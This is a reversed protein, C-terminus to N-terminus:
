APGWSGSEPLPHDYMFKFFTDQNRSSPFKLHRFIGEDIDCPGACSPDCTSNGNIGIVDTNSDIVVFNQDLDPYRNNLDQYFYQGTTCIGIIDCYNHLDLVPTGLEPYPVQTCPDQFDRWPDPASYVSVAAIGETFFGYEIAMSAGNSWGSLFVRRDDVPVKSKALAISKDIFDVDANLTPSSRNLNRYWNDWGLGANDPFPYEHLTNRGIPLVYSFGLRTPDENNLPETTKVKDWGTFPWAIWPPALSPHLWVILPLPAEPTSNPNEYLCLHRTTGHNDTLELVTGSCIDVFATLGDPSIIDNVIYAPPDGYPSCDLGTQVTTIASSTCVMAKSLGALQLAFIAFTFIMKIQLQQPPIWGASAYIYGHLLLDM